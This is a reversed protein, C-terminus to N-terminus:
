QKDMQIERLKQRKKEAAAERDAQNGIQRPSWPQSMIITQLVCQKIM